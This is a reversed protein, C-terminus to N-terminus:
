STTADNYLLFESSSIISVVVFFMKTIIDTPPPMLDSSSMSLTKLNPASLTAILEAAKFFLSSRLLATSLYPLEM